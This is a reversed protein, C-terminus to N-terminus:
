VLGGRAASLWHSRPGTNLTERFHVFTVCSDGGRDGGRLLDGIRLRGAQRHVHLAPDVDESPNYHPWLATFVGVLHRM